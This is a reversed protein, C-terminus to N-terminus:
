GDRVEYGADVAEVEDNLRVASPSGLNRRYGPTGFPYARGSRRNGVLREREWASKPVPEDQRCDAYPCRPNSCYGNRDIERECRHCVAGGYDFGDDSLVEAEADEAEEEPTRPPPLVADLPGFAFGDIGGDPQLFAQLVRDELAKRLEWRSLEDEGPRYALDIEVRGAKRRLKRFQIPLPFAVQRAHPSLQTGCWEGYFRRLCRGAEGAFRKPDPCRVAVVALFEDGGGHGDPRDGPPTAPRGTTAPTVATATRRSNRRM